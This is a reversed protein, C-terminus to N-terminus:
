LRGRMARHMRSHFYLYVATAPILIVLVPFVYAIMWCLLLVLLDALILIIRKVLVWMPPGDNWAAVLWEVVAEAPRLARAWSCWYCLVASTPTGDLTKGCTSCLGGSDPNM